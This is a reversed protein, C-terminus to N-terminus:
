KGVELGVAKVAKRFYGHINRADQEFGDSGTHITQQKIMGPFSFMSSMHDLFSGTRFSTPEPWVSVRSLHADEMARRGIKNEKKGTRSM